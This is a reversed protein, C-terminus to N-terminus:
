DCSDADCVNNLRSSLWPDHLCTFSLALLTYLRISANKLHEASISDLGTSKNAALNRIAKSVEHCKIADVNDVNDVEFCKTQVCNFLKRYHMRWLEAIANAGPVGDVSCPLSPKCNNTRKVEKWFDNNTNDLLKKAM